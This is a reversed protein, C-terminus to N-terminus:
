GFGADRLRHFYFFFDPKEVRCNKKTVEIQRLFLQMILLQRKLKTYLTQAGKHGQLIVQEYTNINHCFLEPLM